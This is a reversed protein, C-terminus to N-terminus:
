GINKSSRKSEVYDEFNMGLRGTFFTLLLADTLLSDKETLLNTFNPKEPIWIVKKLNGIQFEYRICAVVGSISCDILVRRTSLSTFLDNSDVCLNVPVDIGLLEIYAFASVECEDIEESAALTEAAPVSKVPRKSKHSLWSTVHFISENTLEGIWLGSIIGLQENEDCKSASAISLVSLEINKDSPCPYKVM